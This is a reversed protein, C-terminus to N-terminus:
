RELSRQRYISPVSMDKKQKAVISAGEAGTKRMNLSGSNVQVFMVDEINAQEAHLPAASIKEEFAVTSLVAFCFTPIILKKM